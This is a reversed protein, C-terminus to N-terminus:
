AIWAKRRGTSQWYDGEADHASVFRRYDEESGPASEEWDFMRCFWTFHAETEWNRHYQSNRRISKEVRLVAEPDAGVLKCMDWLKDYAASSDRERAQYTLNWSASDKYFEGSKKASLYRRCFDKYDQEAYLYSTAAQRLIDINYKM